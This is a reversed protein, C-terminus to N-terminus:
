IRAMALFSAHLTITLVLYLSRAKGPSLRLFKYKISDHSCGALCDGCLTCTLAPSGKKIDAPNLADYKCYSTCHMCLTCSKDIYMRFPNVPKIVNVVTGIPCYMTCHVMKKKGTSFVIMVLIGAIGFLVAALTAFLHSFSLWRFIIAGTVVLVVFSSKILVKNELIGRTTKGKSALNDFAGFYCLQSCWAPGTVLVTSLFLITMVSLEGRYVPGAVIMMPIPLHLKGTMLFKDMGSIGLVLQTFFVVSFITWTITRWRPVNDRDSMKYGVFAGYLSIVLIEIWGAGKLFREAMLIPRELKVQVFALLIFTLIFIAVPIRYEGRKM